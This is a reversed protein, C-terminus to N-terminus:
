YEKIEKLDFKEVLHWVVNDFHEREAGIWYETTHKLIGHDNINRAWVAADLLEYGFYTFANEWDKRFVLLELRALQDITYHQM